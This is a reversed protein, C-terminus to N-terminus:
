PAQCLCHTLALFTSHGDALQSLWSLSDAINRAPNPLMGTPDLHGQLVQRALQTRSFGLWQTWRELGTPKPDLYAVRYDPGLKARTAASQLADGYSGVRDVLGRELAQQGTWVRGQAVADIKQPTTKRAAAAKATFDDYIHNVSSQVLAEFRPDLPRLPNQADALWTTTVGDTHIGIKGMMRDATPFLAFVGISGTVTTPDAIVEDASLSVWYGGSAALNSM